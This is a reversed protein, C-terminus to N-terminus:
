CAVPRCLCHRSREECEGGIEPGHYPRWWVADNSSSDCEDCNEYHDIFKSSDFHSAKTDVMSAALQKMEDSTPPQEIGSIVPVGWYGNVHRGVIGGLVGWDVPSRPQWSVAFHHTGKRQSALHYGYRPTRGTLGAAFANRRAHICAAELSRVFAVSKNAVWSSSLVRIRDSGLSTSIVDPRAISTRVYM